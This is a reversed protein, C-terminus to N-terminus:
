SKCIGVGWLEWIDGGRGWARTSFAASGVLETWCLPFLTMPMMVGVGGDWQAPSSLSGLSGLVM